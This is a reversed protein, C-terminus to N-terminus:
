SPLSFSNRLWTLNSKENPGLNGRKCYNLFFFFLFWFGFLVGKPRNVHDWSTPVLWWAHDWQQKYNLSTNVNNWYTVRSLSTGSNVASIDTFRTAFKSMYVSLGPLGPCIKGVVRAHKSLSMITRHIVHCSTNCIVNSFELRTALFFNLVFLLTHETHFSSICETNITHWQKSRLWMCTWPCQSQRQCHRANHITIFLFQSLIVPCIYFM